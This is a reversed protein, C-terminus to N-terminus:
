RGARSEDAGHGLRRVVLYGTLSVAVWALTAVTLALAGGVAQVCLACVVAFAVMGVSGIAAGRADDRAARLDQEEAVLTLSALLIAPFALFVGGDRPGLVASVVGAATSVAAGFVFRVLLAKPRVRHLRGLRLRIRDPEDSV